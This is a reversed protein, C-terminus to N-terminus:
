KKGGLIFLNIIQIIAPILGFIGIVLGIRFEKQRKQQHDNETSIYLQYLLELASLSEEKESHTIHNRLMEFVTAKDDSLLCFHKKEKINDILIDIVQCQSTNSVIKIKQLSAFLKQYNIKGTQPFFTEINNIADSIKQTHNRQLGINDNIIKRIKKTVGLPFWLKTKPRFLYILYILALGGLIIYVFFYIRM